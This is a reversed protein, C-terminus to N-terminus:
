RPCKFEDLYRLCKTCQNDEAYYYTKKDWGAGQQRAYKLCELSDYFVAADCVDKDFKCGLEKAYKLCDLSKGYAAERALTEKYPCKNEVAYRLCDINDNSAALKTTEESWPCGNEHAYKLCELSGMRAALNCTDETWPCGLEHLFQLCELSDASDAEQCVIPDLENGYEICSKLISFKGGHAADQCIYKRDFESEKKQLYFFCKECGYMAAYNMAYQIRDELPDAYASDCGVGLLFELCELHDNRIANMVIEGIYFPKLSFLKKLANLNGKMAAVNLVDLTIHPDKNNELLINFCEDNENSLATIFLTQDLHINPVLSIVFRLYNQYNKNVATQLSFEWDDQSAWYAFWEIENVFDMNKVDKLYFSYDHQSNKLIFNFIETSPYLNPDVKWVKLQEIVKVFDNIDKIEEVFQLHRANVEIMNSTSYKKYLESSEIYSPIM